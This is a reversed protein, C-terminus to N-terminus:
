IKNKIEIKAEISELEEKMKQAEEKSSCEKIITSSSEIVIRANEEDMGTILQIMRIVDTEDGDHGNYIVEFVQPAEPLNDTVDQEKEQAVPSADHMEQIGIAYGPINTTTGPSSPSIVYGAMMEEQTMYSRRSGPETAMIRTDSIENRRSLPKSVSDEATEPVPAAPAIASISSEHTSGTSVEQMVAVKDNGTFRDLANHGAFGIILAIMAAVAVLQFINRNKAENRRKATKESQLKRLLYFEVSCKKCVAIHKLLAEREYENVKGEALCSISEEKPCAGISEHGYAVAYLTSCESCERLHELFESQEDGNLNGEAYQAFKEDDPCRM